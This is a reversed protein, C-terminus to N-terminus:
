AWGSFTVSSRPRLLPRRPGLAHTLAVASLPEGTRCGQRGDNARTPLGARRGRAARVKACWGAWLDPCWGQPAAGDEVGGLYLYMLPGALARDFALNAASMAFLVGRPVTLVADVFLANEQALV